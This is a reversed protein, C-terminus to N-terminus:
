RGPERVSSTMSRSVFLLIPWVLVNAYRTSRASMVPHYSFLTHVYMLSAFITLNDEWSKIIKIKTQKASFVFCFHICVFLFLGALSEYQHRWVDPYVSYYQDFWYTQTNLRDLQCVPKYSFLTHVYMLSAFITLNDEWSKIIKIKTQKASIVFCFHFCVFLFLGALSEYQHRWVEPYSSYYQDFWSTQTYLRDLQCLRNTNFCHTSM